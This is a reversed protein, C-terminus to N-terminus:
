QFEGQFFLELLKDLNAEEIDEPVEQGNTYYALGKNYKIMLNYMTGISNTEDIKTFIFKEIPFENFQQIISEMDQEKSTLSLVLYSEVDQDFNIIKKLDSVYKAEKYNRGATDIFILDLNQMKGIASKYDSANYAIEVPAQLLNAYTKLQEIAAIRYTDTTIFGIKKKKELVSRAAMKAITTTKGVGTPGLVNIYKKEFSLGGIPLHALKKNLVDKIIDKAEDNNLAKTKNYYVFLEDSIATILEENLEQRKLFDIIPLIEEPLEAHKTQRQMSQLISKLDAIESKLENTLKLDANHVEKDLASEASQTVSAAVTRNHMEPIHSPMINEVSDVGALVEFNKHKILGFFKKTIVVKSNIIVADDGLEARIQKMAESISPAIYKKMKM